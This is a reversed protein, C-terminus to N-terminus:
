AGVAKAAGARCSARGIEGAAHWGRSHDLNAFRGSPSRSMAAELLVLPQEPPETRVDPGVVLHEHERAPADAGGSPLGLYTFPEASGCKFITSRFNQDPM